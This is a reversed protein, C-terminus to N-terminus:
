WVDEMDTQPLNWTMELGGFFQPYTDDEQYAMGMRRECWFEGLVTDKQFRCVVREMAATLSFYGRMGPDEDYVAFVVLVRAQSGGDEGKQYEVGDIRVVFYPFVSEEREEGTEDFVPAAPVPLIPLAQPYGKFRAPKGEKDVLSLEKTIREIEAILEQQLKNATM